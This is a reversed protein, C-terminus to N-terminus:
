VDNVRLKVHVSTGREHRGDVGVRCLDWLPHIGLLLSNYIHGRPQQREEEAERGGGVVRRGAVARAADRGVDVGAAPREGGHARRGIAADDDYEHDREMTASM